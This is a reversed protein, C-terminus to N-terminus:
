ETEHPLHTKKANSQAERLRRTIEAEHCINSIEASRTEANSSMPTAKSKQNERSHNQISKKLENQRM